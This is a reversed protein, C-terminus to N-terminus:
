GFVAIYITHRTPVVVEFILVQLEVFCSINLPVTERYIVVTFILTRPVVIYGTCWHVNVFRKGSAFALM